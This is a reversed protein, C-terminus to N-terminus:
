RRSLVHDGVVADEWAMGVSTFVRRGTPVGALGQVLERLDGAIPDDPLERAARPIILNGCERWATARDEVIVFAHAVAETPLERSTATHAGIAIICVDPRHVPLDFVPTSSSTACVVIDAQRVADTSDTQVRVHTDTMERLLHAAAVGQDTRRAVLAIREIPFEACIAAAHTMAQPGAGIIVLDAATPLALRRLAVLSVAATRLLTLETADLVAVPSLTHRDFVVHVGQIRHRVERASHAVTVVKVALLGTARSPMILMEGGDFGMNLRAPDPGDPPANLYAEIADAALAPTSLYRIEDATVHPLPVRPGKAQQSPHRSQEQVAAGGTCNVRTPRSGQRHGSM